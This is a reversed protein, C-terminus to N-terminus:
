WLERRDENPDVNEHDPEWCEDQYVANEQDREENRGDVFEYAASLIQSDLLNCLQADSHIDNRHLWHLVRKEPLGQLGLYRRAQIFNGAMDGKSRSHVYDCLKGLDYM